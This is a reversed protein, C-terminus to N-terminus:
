VVKNVIERTIGPVGEVLDDILVYVNSGKRDSIPIGLKRLKAKRLTSHLRETKAKKFGLILEIDKVTIRERGSPTSM